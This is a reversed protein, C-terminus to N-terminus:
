QKTALVLFVPTTYFSLYSHHSMMHNMFKKLIIYTVICVIYGLLAMRNEPAAFAGERGGRFAIRYTRVVKLHIKVPNM